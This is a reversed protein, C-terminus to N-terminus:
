FLFSIVKFFYFVELQVLNMLSICFWRRNMFIFKKLCFMLLVFFKISFNVVVFFLICLKLEIGLKWCVLSINLKVIKIEQQVKIDCIVFVVISVLYIVFFLVECKFWNCCINVELCILFFCIYYVFMSVQSLWFEYLWWGSIFLFVYKM